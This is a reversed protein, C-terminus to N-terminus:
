EFEEIEKIIEETSWISQAHNKFHEIIESIAESRGESQQETNYDSLADYRDEYSM